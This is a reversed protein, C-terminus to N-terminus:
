ACRIKPVTQWNMRAWSSAQDAIRLRRILSADWFLRTFLIAAPAPRAVYIIGYRKLNAEGQPVVSHEAAVLIYESDIYHEVAQRIRTTDMPVGQALGVHRYDKTVGIM